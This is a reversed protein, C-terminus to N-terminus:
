IFEEIKSLLNESVDFYSDKRLMRLNKEATAGQGVYKEFEEDLEPDYCILEIDGNEDIEVRRGFYKASTSARVNTSSEVRASRSINNEVLEYTGDHYKTVEADYEVGDRHLVIWHRYSRTDAADVTYGLKKVSRCFEDWSRGTAKPTSRSAIIVRKM